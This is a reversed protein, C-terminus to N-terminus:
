SFRITGSEEIECLMGTQLRSFDPDPIELVPMRLGYLNSAVMAGVAINVDAMCLIIALPGSENRISEAVGAPTGASGKSRAMVLIQGCLSRGRQPHSAELIRGDNPDFGGWFSVPEDVVLLRGQAKGKSLVHGRIETEAM